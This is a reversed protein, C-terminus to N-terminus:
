RAGAQQKRWSWLIAATMLAALGLTRVEPYEIPSVVQSKILVDYVGGVGLFFPYILLVSNGLRFITAYMLGVFFLQAFEPQFGAHHFAYFMAALAIGAAAGFAREFLTRLFGYFFICEFAVALLVYAAKWSTVADWRFDAPPPAFRCFQYLLLAALALNTALFLPWKRLSFGFDAFSDGARQIFLLPFLIGVLFIQGVDRVFIAAWPWPALPLMAVSLGVVVLGAATAVLTTRDPRWHFLIRLMTPIRGQLKRFVGKSLAFIV